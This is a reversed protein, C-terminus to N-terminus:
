ILGAKRYMRLLNAALPSSFVDRSDNTNARQLATVSVNAGDMGDSLYTGMGTVMARYQVAAEMYAAQQAAALVNTNDVVYTVKISGRAAGTSFGIRWVDRTVRYPWLARLRTLVGGTAGDSRDWTYDVGQELLTEAPFPDTGQGNNGDRDEYVEIVEIVPWRQLAIDRKGYGDLYEVYDTVSPDFGLYNIVMGAAASLALNASLLADGTPTDIGMRSAFVEVSLWSPVAM